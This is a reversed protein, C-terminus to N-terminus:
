STHTALGIMIEKGLESVMGYMLGKVEWLVVNCGKSGSFYIRKGEILSADDPMPMNLASKDMIYLTIPISGHLYAASVVRQGGISCLRGGILEANRPRPLNVSFDVRSTFWKQLQIYDSTQLDVPHERLQNSLHEQVLTRVAPEIRSADNQVFQPVIYYAMLSLMLAAAGGVMYKRWRAILPLWESYAPTKRRESAVATLLRERLSPSMVIPPSKSRLIMKLDEQQRFFQSCEVCDAVHREALAHRNDLVDQPRGSELLTKRVKICTM